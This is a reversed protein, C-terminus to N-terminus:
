QIAVRKCSAGGEASIGHMEPLHGLKKPGAYGLGYGVPFLSIREDCPDGLWGFPLRGRFDYPQWGRADRFLVDAIGGAESGPLWAAVFADSRNILDNAYATRGSYFVTM